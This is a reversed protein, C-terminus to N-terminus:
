YPRFIVADKRVEAIWGRGSAYGRLAERHLVADEIVKADCVLSIHEDLVVYFGREAIGRRIEDEFLSADM